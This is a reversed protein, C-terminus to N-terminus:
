WFLNGFSKNMPNPVMFWSSKKELGDLIKHKFRPLKAWIDFENNRFDRHWNNEMVIVM